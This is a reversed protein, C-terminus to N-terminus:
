VAYGFRAAWENLLPLVPALEREYRRWRAISRAYLPQIVQRASPTGIERTMAKARYDLMAPDFGVDLFGTLARAQGELDAVIDEYRVEHVDLELRTRALEMLRMVDDYYSAAMGLDLFRVMAANIGFRQQYCSLVVDRPDRLALIIKADPFFRKILPLVIINLPLKDILIMGPQLQADASAMRWYDRRMSQIEDDELAALRGLKGHDPIAKALAHAFHEREEICVLKPHASLIQDLLTTGSRPFGVLFVPAPTDFQQPWRWAAVDTEVTLRAMRAVGDPHYLLHSAGLLAQHERLLVENAATFAAFAAPADGAADRAEGIVGWALAINRPSADKTLGLAIEQARAADGQRLLTQALTLRALENRPERALAKEAHEVAGALDHRRECALALGAHAAADEPAHALVREYAVVSAGFHQEAAELNGLNRWADILGLEGAQTFAARAQPIEELRRLAVGLLNLIGPQNPAARDADRFHLKAAAADGSELAAVGLVQHGNADGPFRALLARALEAAAAWDRRGLAAMAARALAPQDQDTTM